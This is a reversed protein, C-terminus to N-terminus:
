IEDYELKMSPPHVENVCFQILKMNQQHHHFTGVSHGLIQWLCDPLNHNTKMLGSLSDVGMLSAFNVVPEGRHVFLLGVCAAPFPFAWARTLSFIMKLM